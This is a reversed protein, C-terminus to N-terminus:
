YEILDPSIWFFDSTLKSESSELSNYGIKLFIDFNGTTVTTNPYGPIGNQYQTFAGAAGYWNSSTNNAIVMFSSGTLQNWLGGYQGDTYGSTTIRTVMSPAVDNYTADWPNKNQIWRYKVETASSTAKQKVMFECKKMDKTMALDFWKNENYYVGTTFPDTRAFVGSSGPNNHHFVHIWKSGDSETYITKDFRPLVNYERVENAELLGTRTIM